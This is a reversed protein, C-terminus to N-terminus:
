GDQVLASLTCVLVTGRVTAYSSCAENSILLAKLREVVLAMVHDRFLRSARAGRNNIQSLLISTTSKSSLIDSISSNM